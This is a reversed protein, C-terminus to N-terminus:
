SDMMVRFWTELCILGWLERNFESNNNVAEKVAEPKFIGRNISRKSLLLSRSFDKLAGNLWQSIPVPFGIKDQRCRVEEPIIGKLAERLIYKIRGGNFKIHAPMSFLLDAIRRDLFPARSELSFAMSMRDEVQLLAPLWVKMEYLLVRDLLEINDNKNFMEQFSRFPSYGNLREIYKDTLISNLNESRKILKFYREDVPGFLGDQFFDSVLQRYNKLQSLNPLLDEIKLTLHESNGIINKRLLRELYLLYYRTYGGMMEDAGQGGLVVKIEQSALKAVMYHGFVGPAAVPEDLYWIIKPLYVEFDSHNPFIEFHQTNAFTSTIRGYATDNYIGGEQFAATFTKIPHNIFDSALCVISATDIGGSLYAGLPVDSNIQLRVSDRLLSLLEDKFRDLPKNLDTNFTIDWYKKIVLNSPGISMFHGPLLKKIGQFFTKDGLVYQFTLYDAVAELNLVKIKNYQLISKIESAFVFTNGFKTYYLPKIGFPDRALFLRKKKLDYIAFAFMGNFRNLCEEKWEEYAHIIVETDSNSKFRHRGILELEYRLERYNYICGNFVLWLSNDENSFPQHGAPSIDIISLRRHGLGLNGDCLIVGEDDTGRHIMIDRMKLLTGKDVPAKDLNYIGCIGCM